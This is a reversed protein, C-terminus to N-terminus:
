GTCNRPLRMDDALGSEWVVLSEAWRGLGLAEGDSKNIRIKKASVNLWSLIRWKKDLKAGSQWSERPTEKGLCTTKTTKEREGREHLCAL